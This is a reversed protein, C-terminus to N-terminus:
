KPANEKQASKKLREMVDSPINVLGDNNKTMFSCVVEDAVKESTEELTYQILPYNDNTVVRDKRLLEGNNLLGVIDKVRARLYDTPLNEDLVVKTLTYMVNGEPAIDTKFFFFGYEEGKALGKISFTIDSLEIDNNYKHTKHEEKIWEINCDKLKDLTCNEDLDDQTYKHYVLRTSILEM